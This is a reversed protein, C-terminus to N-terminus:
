RALAVLGQDLAILTVADVQSPWAALTAENLSVGMPYPLKQLTPLALGVQVVQNQTAVPGLFNLVVALVLTVLGGAVLRLRCSLFFFSTQMVVFFSQTM